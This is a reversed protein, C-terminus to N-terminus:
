RVAQKMPAARAAEGLAALVDSRGAFRSRAQSLAADRKGAEGLVAYARVLRVWGAPDDPHARLRAALGDVMGTIAASMDATPTAAPEASPSLRGSTQVNAIEAALMTRRPDAAPLSALIARWDALGGTTDGKAIRARALYYRATPQAPDAKLASLFLARADPGIDGQGKLVMVEGLMAPLDAAGPAIVMARRLAHAAADADGLSLDFAALRRLPEPDAPRQNAVDALAAALAQPSAHEPNARWAALRGKFPQDALGPSGVALYIVLSATAVAGAALLPALGRSDVSVPPEARDATTLLRRGAEARAARREDAPLLGREHLEDIEGLARRYVALSPDGAGASVGCLAARYLILAGAGAALLAAAVWFAIM